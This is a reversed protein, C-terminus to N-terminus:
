ILQSGVVFCVLKHLWMKIVNLMLSTITVATVKFILNTKSKSPLSLPVKQVLFLIIQWTIKLPKDNKLVEGDVSAGSNYRCNLTLRM